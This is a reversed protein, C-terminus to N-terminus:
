LKLNRVSSNPLVFENNHVKGFSVTPSVPTSPSESLSSLLTPLLDLFSNSRSSGLFEDEAEKVWERPDRFLDQEDYEISNVDDYKEKLANPRFGRYEKRAFVVDYMM